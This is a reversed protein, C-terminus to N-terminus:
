QGQRVRRTPAKMQAVQGGFFQSGYIGGRPTVYGGYNQDAVAGQDATAAVAAQFNTLATAAPNVVILNDQGSTLFLADIPAPVQIYSFGGDGDGFELKAKQRVLKYTGSETTPEQAYHAHLAFSAEVLKANSMSALRGLVSAAGTLASANISALTTNGWYTGGSIDPFYVDIRVQSKFGQIDQFTGIISADAPTPM